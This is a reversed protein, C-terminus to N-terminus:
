GSFMETATGSRHLYATRDARLPSGEHDGLVGDGQNDEDHEGGRDGPREQGGAVQGAVAGPVQADAQVQPQVGAFAEGVIRV